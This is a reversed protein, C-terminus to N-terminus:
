SATWADWLRAYEGRVALLERHSGLEVIRGDLMVAIRDADYATHLRHAIAVVTRGHLAAAMSREVSRAATPDLMATAEDLVVTHPDLLILRALAVQQAESAALQHEGSGVRTELGDPLAPLWSDAGVAALAARVDADSADSRALRVNDAVTGHFVHHEQTVLAVENRLMDLSRSALPVGGVTASGALPPNIGTIIRALTSKGSGSPGVVALREGPKLALTVDHLVSRGPQYEFTVDRLEIVQGDPTEDVPVRDPRVHHVGVIRALSVASSQLEDLWRILEEVPTALRIVYLCVAAVAGVSTLGQGALWGGWLLAAIVPISFSLNSAPFLVTRLFVTYRQAWYAKGIADDVARRRVEGLHLADITRSNEANASTETFVGSYREGLVRYAPASRRLYWRASIVLLPLGALVSLSLLPGVVVCAGVTAVVTVISVLIDPVGYRVVRSVQDIDRTTRNLLDGTGAAEVESLPLRTVSAIFRERLDAFVVEGLRMAGRHAFFAFIGQLILFGLMIAALTAVHDVTTGAEVDDVITALLWPGTLACGAALLFFTTVVILARRHGAILARVERWVQRRSAIPFGTM